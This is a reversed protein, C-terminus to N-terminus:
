HPLEVHGENGALPSLGARILEDRSIANQIPVGNVTVDAANGHQHLSTGPRAVPFPNSARNDWLVQQEAVTRLGSTVKFTEGRSAALSELRALLEPNADLDGSLHAYTGPAAAPQATAAAPQATAAPTMASALQAQFNTGDSPAATTVPTTAPPAVPAPAAAWAQLTAMRMMASEISM